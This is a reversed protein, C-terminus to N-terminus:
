VRKCVRRAHSVSTSTHGTEVLHMVIEHREYERRVPLRSSSEIMKRRSKGVGDEDGDRGGHIRARIMRWTSRGHRRGSEKSGEIGLRWKDKVVTHHMSALGREQRDDSCPGDFGLHFEDKVM